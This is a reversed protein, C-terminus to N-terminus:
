VLSRRSWVVRFGWDNSGVIPDNWDRAGCCLHENGDLFGAYSRLMVERRQPDDVPEIAQDAGMRTATWEMVNGALDLAGCAAEGAPFCGVPSPRGIGTDRYNAREPDPTADGWPYRRKDTGRAAREWELATPLRIQDHPPLWGQMHGQDTLWACYATAEYWSVGVIPQIPGNYEMMDIIRPAELPQNDRRASLRWGWGHEGWWCRETYGGAAVFRAYDACTIPYRGIWYAHPLQVQKLASRLPKSERDDGFWFPGPAVPCWYADLARRWKDSRAAGPGLVALPLRPDPLPAPLGQCLATTSGYCLTGLALGARARLPAPAEPARGQTSLRLLTDRTRHWLGGPQVLTPDYGGARERGILALLEGALIQQQPGGKLLQEVLTLPRELEREALVQYGVMLTLAEHWHPQAAHAVSRQLYDRQQGKLHYGALFEQFTRHPFTYVEGGEGSQKLLLGNRTAIAHLVLSALHDRRLPDGAAYPAFGEELLARVQGLHLDAPRDDQANREAQQHAAYGLRAMLALLDTSRFQPLALQELIEKGGPEQRWRLLLLEVCEAYLLARADPLTGKGAHVIAMMTLLLPLRALARLEARTAVAQRLAAANGLVQRGTATLEAYWANIFQEIQQEDLAALTEVAFGRLQRRPNAQYDLVRCTVLAPCRAYTGTAADICEVVRSLIPEGVVEDLGDFLLIARGATLAAELLEVAAAHADLSARLFDLLVAESGHPAQALPAFAALERLVVRVPLLAGHPWGPLCALWGEPPQPEDPHRECLAAGALCLALHNLFTSKGSGPAGLLLLRAAPQALAELAALPRTREESPRMRQREPLAAIEAKTLKVQREINLRIYVQELRMPQAYRSEAQDIQSLQLPGCAYRLARLYNTLAREAQQAARDPLAAHNHQDGQVVTQIVHAIQGGAGTQVQMLTRLEPQQGPAGLAEVLAQCAAHLPADGDLGRLAANLDGSLARRLAKRHEVGVRDRLLDGVEDHDDHQQLLGLPGRALYALGSSLGAARLTGDRDASLQASAANLAQQLSEHDIGVRNAEGRNASRAALPNRM